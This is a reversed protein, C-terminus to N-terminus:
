DNYIIELEYADIFKRQLVSDLKMYPSILGERYTVFKIKNLDINNNILTDLEAQKMWCRVGNLLIDVPSQDQNGGIIFKGKKSNEIDVKDHVSKELLITAYHTDQIYEIPIIHTEEKPIDILFENELKVDGRKKMQDMMNNIFRIKELLHMKDFAKSTEWYFETYTKIM